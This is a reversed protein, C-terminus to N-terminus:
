FQFTIHPAQSGETALALVHDSCIPIETLSWQTPTGHEDRIKVVPDLACLAQMSDLGLGAAKLIAEKRTWMACFSQAISIGDGLEALERPSFCHPALLQGDQCDTLRELDIGIRREWSFGYAVWDGCHSLNFNIQKTGNLQPKGYKGYSFQIDSPTCCIFRSLLMRLLGRAYAFRRSHVPNYYSEMRRKEDTDLISWVVELWDMHEATNLCMVHVCDMPLQFFSPPINM